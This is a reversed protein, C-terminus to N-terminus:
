LVEFDTLNFWECFKSFCQHMRLRAYNVMFNPYLRVCTVNNPMNVCEGLRAALYNHSASLDSFPGILAEVNCNTRNQQPFLHSSEYIVDRTIRSSSPASRVHVRPRTCVAFRSLPHGNRILAASRLLRHPARAIASWVSGPHDKSCISRTCHEWGISVQVLRMRFLWLPM